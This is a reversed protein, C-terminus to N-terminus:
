HHDVHFPRNVLQLVQVVPVDVALGIQLHHRFPFFYGLQFPRVGLRHYRGDVPQESVVTPRVIKEFVEHGPERHGHQVYRLAHRVRHQGVDLRGHAEVHGYQRHDHVAHEARGLVHGHPRERDHAQHGALHDGRVGTVATVRGGGDARRRVRREGIRRHRLRVHLQVGRGCGDRIRGDLHGGRDRQHDPEYLYEHVHEPQARHAGYQGLRQDATERGARGYVHDRRLHLLQQAYLDLFM